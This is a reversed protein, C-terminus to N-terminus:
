AAASWAAQPAFPRFWERRLACVGAVSRWMDSSEETSQSLRGALEKLADAPFLTAADSFVLIEHKAWSVANNLAARNMGAARLIVIQRMPNSTMRQIAAFDAPGEAVIVLDLKDDPYDLSDLRALVAPLRSDEASIRLIVSIGPLTAPAAASDRERRRRGLLSQLLSSGKTSGPNSGFVLARM